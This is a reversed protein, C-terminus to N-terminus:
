GEDPVTLCTCEGGFVTQQINESFAVVEATYKNPSSMVIVPQKGRILVAAMLKVFIIGCKM